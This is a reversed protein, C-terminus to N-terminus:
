PSGGPKPLTKRGRPTPPSVSLDPDPVWGLRVVQDHKHRLSRMVAMAVSREPEPLKECLTELAPLVWDIECRLAEVGLLYNSVLDLMRLETCDPVWTLESLVGDRRSLGSMATTAVNREREPLKECLAGLASLGQSVESRLAEAALLYDSVLNRLEVTGLPPSWVAPMPSGAAPADSGSEPTAQGPGSGAQAPSTESQVGHSVQGATSGGPHKEREWLAM